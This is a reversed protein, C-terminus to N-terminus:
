TGPPLCFTRPLLGSLSLVWGGKWRYPPLLIVIVEPHSGHLSHDRSSPVELSFVGAHILHTGDLPAGPLLAGPPSQLLQLPM